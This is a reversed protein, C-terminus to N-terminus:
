LNIPTAGEEKVEAYRFCSKLHDNVLGTAQLYAYIITSGVFSMGRKKLDKAIADSIATKAPVDSLTKRQGNVPTDDVFPWIYADFTNFAQQIELFVHANKRVSFVKLRNRIIGLNNLQTELESDTMCAVKQPDFGKFAKRYAERKRLVTEWSLGAQAGELILMEFHKHDDHIPVGWETDHYQRELDSANAWDCRNM